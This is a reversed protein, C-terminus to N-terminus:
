ATRLYENFSEEHRSSNGIYVVVADLQARQSRLLVESIQDPTDDQLWGLNKVADIYIKAVINDPDLVYRRDKRLAAIWVKVPRDFHNEVQCPGIAALTSGLVGAVLQRRKQWHVGKYLANWSLAKEELIYFLPEPAPRGDIPEVLEKKKKSIPRRRKPSLM